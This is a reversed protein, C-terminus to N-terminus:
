NRQGNDANAEGERAAAIRKKFEADDLRRKFGDRLFELVHQRRAWESLDFAADGYARVAHQMTLDHDLAIEVLVRHMEEQSPKGAARVEALTKDTLRDM